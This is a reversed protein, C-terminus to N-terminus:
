GHNKSIEHQLYWIAKKLDQIKSQDPKKGARIIYKLANGLEFNLDYANIIDIVKYQDQTYHAPNNVAEYPKSM